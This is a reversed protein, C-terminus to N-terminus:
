FSKLSMEKQQLFFISCFCVCERETQTKRQKERERETQTKRQKDRERETQRERNRARERQRLRERNRERETHREVAPAYKACFCTRQVDGETM